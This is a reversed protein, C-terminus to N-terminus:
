RDLLGLTRADAALPEFFHMGPVGDDTFLNAMSYKHISSKRRQHGRSTMKSKEQKQARKDSCFLSLSVSLRVGHAYCDLEERHIPILRCRQTPLFVSELVSPLRVRLTRVSLRVGHAYCDFEEGMFRNQVVGSDRCACDCWVAYLRARWARVVDPRGMGM